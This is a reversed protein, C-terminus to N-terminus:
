YPVNQHLVKSLCVQEILEAPPDYFYHLLYELVLLMRTLPLTNMDCLKSCFFCMIQLMKFYSWLFLVIHSLYLQGLKSLFLHM